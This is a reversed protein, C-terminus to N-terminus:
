LIPGPSQARSMLYAFSKMSSLRVLIHHWCYPRLSNVMVTPNVTCQVFCYDLWWLINSFFNSSALDREFFSVNWFILKHIINSKPSQRGDCFMFIDDDGADFIMWDHWVFPELSHCKVLISWFYIAEDQMLIRRRDSNQTKSEVFVWDSINIPMALYDRKRMFLKNWTRNEKRRIKQKLNELASSFNFLISM